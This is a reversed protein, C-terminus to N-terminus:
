DASIDGCVSIRGSMLDPLMTDRLEALYRNEENNLYYIHQKWMSFMMMLISSIFDKNNNAFSFENKNKSLSIYDDAVIKLGTFSVAKNMAANNEEAEKKGQWVEYIGLQKSLSENVTLKLTNKETIIRNLDNIIDNYERRKVTKSEFEIYRSPNLMYDKEKISEVSVRQSFMPIDSYNNIASIAKEMDEDRFINFTKTYTRNEHSAGGFQGNQKREEEGHTKRMDVFMIDTTAKNKNLVLLCTPIDTSEFMSRPCLIVAEIYNREILFRKVEKEASNDTTLVGNPLLFVAKHTIEEIATLIFAFNANSEPPMESEAFRAQMQAFPPHKWKM